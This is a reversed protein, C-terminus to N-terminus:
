LAMAAAATAFGSGMASRSAQRVARLPCFLLTLILIFSLRYFFFGKDFIGTLFIIEAQLFLYINLCKAKILVPYRSTNPPEKIKNMVLM